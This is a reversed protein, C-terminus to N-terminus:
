DMSDFSGSDVVVVIEDGIQCGDFGDILLGDIRTLLM